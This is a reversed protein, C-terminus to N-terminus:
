HCVCVMHGHWKEDSSLDGLTCDNSMECFLFFLVM